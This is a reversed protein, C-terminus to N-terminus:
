ASRLPVDNRQEEALRVQDDVQAVWHRARQLFYGLEVDTPPKGSFQASDSDAMLRTLEQVLDPTIRRTQSIWSVLEDSSMGLVAADMRTVMFNRLTLMVRSFKEENAVSGRAVTELEGLTRQRDYIEIVATADRQRAVALRPLAQAVQRRLFFVITALFVILVGVLASLVLNLLSVPYPEPLPRFETDGPILISQVTIQAPGTFLSGNQGDTTQYGINIPPLTYTGPRWFIVEYDREIATTGDTPLRVGDLLRTEIEGVLQAQAEWAALTPPPFPQAGSPLTLRLTVVTPQGILPAQTPSLWVGEAPPAQASAPLVILWVAVALRLWLRCVRRM